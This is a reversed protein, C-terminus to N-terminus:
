RQESRETRLVHKAEDGLGLGAHPERQSDHALPPAHAGAFAGLQRTDSQVQFGRHTRPQSRVAHEAGHRRATAEVETAVREISSRPLFDGAVHVRDLARAQTRISAVTFAGQLCPMGESGALHRQELPGLRTALPQVLDALRRRAM